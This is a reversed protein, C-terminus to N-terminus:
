RVISKVARVDTYVIRIFVGPVRIGLPTYALKGEMSRPEAGEQALTAKARRLWILVEM